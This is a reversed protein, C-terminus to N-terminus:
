ALHWTPRAWFLKELGCVSAVMFIANATIGAAMVDSLQPGKILGGGYGWM